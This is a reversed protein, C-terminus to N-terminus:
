ESADDDGKVESSIGSASHRAPNKLLGSSRQDQAFDSVVVEGATHRTRWVFRARPVPGHPGAAIRTERRM